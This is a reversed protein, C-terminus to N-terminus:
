GDQNGKTEHKLWYAHVSAVAFRPHDCYPSTFEVRTEAFLRPEFTITCQWQKRWERHTLSVDVEAHVMETLLDETPTENDLEPNQKDPWKWWKWKM